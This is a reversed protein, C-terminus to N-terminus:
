FALGGHDLDAGEGVALKPLPTFKGDAILGFKDTLSTKIGKESLLLFAIVHRGAPDTWVPISEASLCQGHWQYLTKLQKGTTGSYAVFSPPVTSCVEEFSVYTASNTGCVITGDTATVESACPASSRTKDKAVTLPLQLAVQSDALLEGSSATVDITRMTDTWTRPAGGTGATTTVWHFDLSRDGDVWALDDGNAGGGIANINDGKTSWTHLAAGSSMSYVWLYTVANSQTTADAM